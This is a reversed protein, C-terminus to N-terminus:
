WMYAELKLSALLVSQKKMDPVFQKFALNLAQRQLVKDCHLSVNQGDVAEGVSLERSKFVSEIGMQEHKPEEESEGQCSYTQYKLICCDVYLIFLFSPNLSRDIIKQLM